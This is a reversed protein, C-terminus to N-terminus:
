VLTRLQSGHPLLVACKADDIRGNRRCFSAFCGSVFSGLKMDNRSPLVQLALHEPRPRPTRTGSGVKRRQDLVRPKRLGPYSEPTKPINKTDKPCVKLDSFNLLPYAECGKVSLHQTKLM